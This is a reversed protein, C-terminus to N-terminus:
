QRGAKRMARLRDAKRKREERTIPFPEGFPKSRDLMPGLIWGLALFISLCGSLFRTLLELNTM